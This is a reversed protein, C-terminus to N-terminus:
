FEGFDTGEWGEGDDLRGALRTLGVVFTHAPDMTGLEQDLGSVSRPWSGMVLRREAPGRAAKEKVRLTQDECLLWLFWKLGGMQKFVERWM